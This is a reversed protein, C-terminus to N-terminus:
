CIQSLWEGYTDALATTPPLCIRCRRYIAIRLFNLNVRGAVARTMVGLSLDLPHNIFLCAAHFPTSQILEPISLDIVGTVVTHGM